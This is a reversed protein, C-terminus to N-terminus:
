CWAAPACGGRGPAFVTSSPVSGGGVAMGTLLPGSWGVGVGRQELMAPLVLEALGLLALSAAGMVYVPWAGTLLRLLSAGTRDEGSTDDAGWDAPLLWLGAVSSAM